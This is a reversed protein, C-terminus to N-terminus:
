TVGHGRLRLRLGSLQSFVFLISSFRNWHLGRGASKLLYPMRAQPRIVASQLVAAVAATTRLKAWLWRCKQRYRKGLAPPPFRRPLGGPANFSWGRAQYGERAFRARAVPKQPPVRARCASGATRATLPGLTTFHAPPSHACVCDGYGANVTRGGGVTPWTSVCGRCRWRIVVRSIEPNGPALPPAPPLATAVAAVLAASPAPLPKAVAVPMPPAPPVPPAPKPPEEDPTPPAPPLAVDFAVTFLTVLADTEAPAVPPFPPLKLQLEQDVM